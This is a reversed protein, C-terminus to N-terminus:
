YTQNDYDEKSILSVSAREVPVPRNMANGGNGSKHQVVVDSNALEWATQIPKEDESVIGVGDPTRVYEGKDFYEFEITGKRAM